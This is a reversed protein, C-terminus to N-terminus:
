NEFLEVTSLEVFVMEDLVDVIEGNVVENRVEPEKVDLDDLVTLVEENGAVEERAGHLTPKQAYGSM